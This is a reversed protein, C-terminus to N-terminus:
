TFTSMSTTLKRAEECPFRLLEGGWECCDPDDSGLGAKTIM